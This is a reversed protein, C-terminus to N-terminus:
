AASDPDPEFPRSERKIILLVLLLAIPVLFHPFRMVSEHLWQALISQWFDLYFHAWVRAITTGFGWFIAYFLSWIAIRGPIFLGVSLVFDMFGAANLVTISHDESLHTINMVMEIFHGPRPYFGVAYLGHCTFTLAVAIKVLFILRRNWNGGRALYVLLFPSGFQLTYEFFQGIFFFREKLYLAALFILSLGGLWVVLHGAKGLYRISLAAIACILYFWGVGVIFSAIGADVAANTVYDEWAIGWIGRIIPEMWSEDWLLARYPADWQLHQWARGAFVAVTSWQILRFVWRNKAIIMDPKLKV